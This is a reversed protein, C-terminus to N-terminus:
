SLWVLCALLLFFFAGQLDGYHKTWDCSNYLKADNEYIVEAVASPPPCLVPRILSPRSLDTNRM